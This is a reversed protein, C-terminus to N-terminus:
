AEPKPDSTRLRTCAVGRVQFLPLQASIKRKQAACTLGVIAKQIMDDLCCWRYENQRIALGALSTVFGFNAFIHQDKV